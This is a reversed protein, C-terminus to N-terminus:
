RSLEPNCTKEDLSNENSVRCGFTCKDAISALNYGSNVM